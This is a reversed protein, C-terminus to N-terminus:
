KLTGKYLRLYPGQKEKNKLPLSFIFINQLNEPLIDHNLVGRFNNEKTPFQFFFCRNQQTDVTPSLPEWSREPRLPLRHSLLYVIKEDLPLETQPSNLRVINKDIYFTEVLYTNNSDLYIKNAKKENTLNKQPPLELGYLPDSQLNIVGYPLAGALTLGALKRNGISLFYICAFFSIYLTRLAATGLFLSQWLPQQKATKLLKWCIFLLSFSFVCLIFPLLNAQKYSLLNPQIEINGLFVFLWFLTAPISLVFTMIYLSKAVFIFFRKYWNSVIEFHMGIMVAMPALIPFLILPSTGPWILFFLFPIIILARCFGTFSGTPEFQRLALCFPAWFFLGWPALYILIKAPFLFLHRFFGAQLKAPLEFTLANWPLFAQPSIFKIWAITVFIFITLVLLHPASQLNRLMKSPRRAFIMPLYFIFIAKAGVTLIGLFVFFLAIAWAKHWKEEQPGYKHWFFWASAIFLAHVTETQARFGTRLSAWCSLVIAAAMFGAQRNKLRTATAACLWALTLISLFAPFRVSFLSPPSGFSFISVLWAYMPFIQLKSGQLSPQLFKGSSLMERAIAAYAAEEGGQLEVFFMAPLYLLLALIFLIFFWRKALNNDSLNM